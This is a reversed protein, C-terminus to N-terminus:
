RVDGGRAASHKRGENIVFWRSDADSGGEESLLLLPLEVEEFLSCLYGVIMSEICFRLLDRGRVRRGCGVDWDSM